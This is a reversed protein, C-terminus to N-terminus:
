FPMEKETTGTLLPKWQEELDNPGSFQINRPQWPADVENRRELKTNVSSAGGRGDDHVNLLEAFFQYRGVWGM